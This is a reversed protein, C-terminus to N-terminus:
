PMERAVDGLLFATSRNGPLLICDTLMEIPSWGCLVKQTSLDFGPHLMEGAHKKGEAKTRGNKRCAESM